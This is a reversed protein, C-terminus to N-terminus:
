ARGPRYVARNRLLASRAGPLAHAKLFARAEAAAADWGYHANVPRLHNLPTADVIGIPLNAREAIESWYVDIGWGWRLEPFPLFQAFADRHIANLPGIEVFSTRRALAGFHRLTLNYTAISRYRHAPQCLKLGYHDAVALFNDLFEAPLAVDDDVAIVWDFRSLDVSALGLNLNGFKGRDGMPVVNVQVDHRRSQLQGLVGKLDAERGPVEIGLVLVKQRGLAAALRRMQRWGGSLWLAADFVPDTIAGLRQDRWNGGMRTGDLSSFFDEAQSM